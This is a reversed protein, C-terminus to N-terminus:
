AMRAPHICPTRSANVIASLRPKSCGRVFGNDNHKPSGVPEKAIELPLPFVM